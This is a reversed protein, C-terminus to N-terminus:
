PQSIFDMTSRVKEMQALFTYFQPLTMELNVRKKSNGKGVTLKLQLFTSGVQQMEDSAATV